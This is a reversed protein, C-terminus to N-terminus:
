NELIQVITEAFERAAAPGNATVIKGDRIVTKDQYIAGNEKLIKIPTKQLVNSWVTAKKGELVGAKALITPAICIAALVKNQRVAEQAIKQAALDDAYKYAGPGGSFVIADFDAVNLQDFSLDVKTEGGGAGIATGTEKSVTKVQFGSSLFVNKPIFYEEDRFDRYAIIMAIRKQLNPQQFFSSTAKKQKSILPMSQKHSIEKLGLFLVIILVIIITITLIIALQRM